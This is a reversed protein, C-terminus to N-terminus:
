ALYAIRQILHLVQDRQADTLSTFEIGMGPNINNFDGPRYPNIWRVVGEVCLSREQPSLNFRLNLRTGVVEPERSQLFIGLTSLNMAQAFLFTEDSGFDVECDVLVRESLRRETGTASADEWLWESKNPQMIALGENESLM